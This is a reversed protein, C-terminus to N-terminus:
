PIETRTWDAMANEPLNNWATAPPSIETQAWDAAANESLSAWVTHPPSFYVLDIASTSIAVALNAPALLYGRVINLTDLAVAVALNDITLSVSTETLASIPDTSIASFGLM